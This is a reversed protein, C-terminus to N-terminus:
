EEGGEKLEEVNWLLARHTDHESVAYTENTVCQLWSVYEVSGISYPAGIVVPCEKEWRELMANAQKAAEKSWEPEYEYNNMVARVKFDEPKFRFKSM